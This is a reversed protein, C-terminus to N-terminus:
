VSDPPQAFAERSAGHSESSVLADLYTTFPSRSPKATTFVSVRAGKYALIWLVPKLVNCLLRYPFQHFCLWHFQTGVDHRSVEGLLLARKRVSIGIPVLM